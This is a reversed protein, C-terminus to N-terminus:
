TTNKTHTNWNLNISYKQILREEIYHRLSEPEILIYSVKVKGGEKIHKQVLHLKAGTKKDKKILHNSLRGRADSSKTQGIYKVTFNENKISTTFIAYVSVQNRLTKLLDENQKKIETTNWPEISEKPYDFTKRNNEDFLANECKEFFTNLEDTNEYEIIPIKSSSL